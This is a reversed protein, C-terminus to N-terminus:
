KTAVSARYDRVAQVLEDKGVYPIDYRDVRAAIIDRLERSSSIRLLELYPIQDYYYM